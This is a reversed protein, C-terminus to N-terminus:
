EELLEAIYEEEDRDYEVGGYKIELKKAIEKSTKTCFVKLVEPTLAKPDSCIISQSSDYPNNKAIYLDSEIQGDKMLCVKYGFKNYYGIIRFQHDM